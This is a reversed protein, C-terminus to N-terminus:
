PYGYERNHLHPALSISLRLLKAVIMITVNWTRSSECNWVTQFHKSVWVAAPEPPGRDNTCVTEAPRPQMVRLCGTCLSALQTARQSSRRFRFLSIHTPRYFLQPNLHIQGWSKLWNPNSNNWSWSMQDQLKVDKILHAMGLGRFFPQNRPIKVAPIQGWSTAMCSNPVNQFHLTYVICVSYM